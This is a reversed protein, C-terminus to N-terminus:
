DHQQDQALAVRALVKKRCFAMSWHYITRIAPNARFRADYQNDAIQRMGEDAKKRRLSKLTKREEEDLSPSAILYRHGFCLDGMLSGLRTLAEDFNAASVRKLALSLVPFRNMWTACLNRNKSVALDAFLARSDKTIDFFSALMSMFFTKGFRRPRTFLTVDPIGASLFKELFATMDAYYFHRECLDAFKEGGIQVKIEAM